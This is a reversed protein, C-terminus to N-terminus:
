GEIKYRLQQQPSKQIQTWTSIVCAEYRKHSGQPYRKNELPIIKIRSSILSAQKM